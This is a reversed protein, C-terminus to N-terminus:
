EVSPEGGTPANDGTSADPTTADGDEPALARDVAEGVGRAQRQAEEMMTLISEYQDLAWLHYESPSLIEMRITSSRSERSPEGRKTPKRDTAVVSVTIMDGQRLPRDAADKVTWRHTGEVVRRNPADKGQFDELLVRKEDAENLSYSLWVRAVGADDAVRYEVPLIKEATAKLDRRPQVMEVTPPMDEVVGAQRRVDETFVFQPYDSRTWRFRYAMPGPLTRSWRVTRGDSEIALPEAEKDDPLAEASGVTESLTLTWDLTSGALIGNLDLGSVTADPLRTYSPYHSVVTAAVVRPASVVTVSLPETRADGVDFVCQFDSLLRERHFTYSAEGEDSRAALGTPPLAAEAGSGGGSSSSMPSVSTDRALHLTEWPGNTGRWRLTAEAPRRGEPILVVRLTASAGEPLVLTSAGAGPLREWERITGHGSREWLAHAIGDADLWEIRAVRTATPYALAPWPPSIRRLAIQAHIPLAAGLAGATLLMVGLTALGARLRRDPPRQKFDIREAAHLAQRRMGDLLDPSVGDVAYGPTDFQVYSVLLNRLGPHAEEIQLAVRAPDFAWLRDFWDRKLRWVLLALGAALLVARAALPLMFLWDLLFIGTALMLLGAVLRAAGNAHIRLREGRWVARLRHHLAGPGPVHRDSARAVPSSPATRATM